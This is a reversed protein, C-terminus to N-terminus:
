KKGDMEVGALLGNQTPHITVQMGNPATDDPTLTIRGILRTLHDHAEAVLDPNGLLTEMRNLAADFLAEATAIRRDLDTLDAKIAEVRARFVDYPAGEAIAQFIPM